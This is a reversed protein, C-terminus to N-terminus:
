RAIEKQPPVEFSFHVDVLWSINRLQLICNLPFHAGYRASYIPLHHGVERLPQVLADLIFTMMQVINNKM